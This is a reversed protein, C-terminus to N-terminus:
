RRRKGIRNLRGACCFIRPGPACRPSWPMCGPRRGTGSRLLACPTYGALWSLPTLVDGILLVGLVAVLVPETKIYAYAVGFARAKMVVLMLATAGIQALAGLACWALATATVPPLGTGGVVLAFSLFLVAFPFGYVFRVQTAGLTGIKGTLSSQAGNRFVQATAAGLTVPVWLLAAAM